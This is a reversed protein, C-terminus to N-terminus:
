AVNECMLPNQNVHQQLLVLNLLIQGKKGKQDRLSLVNDNQAMLPHPILVFYCPWSKAKSFPLRNTEGESEGCFSEDSHTCRLVHFVGFKALQCNLWSGQFEQGDFCSSASM